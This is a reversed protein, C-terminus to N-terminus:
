AFEEAKQKVNKEFTEKMGNVKETMKAFTDKVDDAIKRGQENLKKMTESGKDPALLIGVAAGVAVGASIAILIKTTNNM